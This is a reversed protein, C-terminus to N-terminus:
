SQKPLRRGTGGLSLASRRRERNLPRWERILSLAKHSYGRQGVPRRCVAQIITRRQREDAYVQYLVPRGPRAWSYFVGSLSWLISRRKKNPMLNRYVGRLEVTRWSGPAKAIVSNSIWHWKADLKWNTSTAPLRLQSLSRNRDRTIDIQSIKRVAMGDFSRFHGRSFTFLKFFHARPM